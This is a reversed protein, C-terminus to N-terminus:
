RMEIESVICCQGQQPACDEILEDYLSLCSEADLGLGKLFENFIEDIDGDLRHTKSNKLHWYSNECAEEIEDILDDVEEGVDEKQRMDRILDLEHAGAASLCQVLEGNEFLAGGGIGDGQDSAWIGLTRCKLVASVKAANSVPSNSGIKSQPIAGDIAARAQRILPDSDIDGERYDIDGRYAFAAMAWGSEELQSVVLDANGTSAGHKVKIVKGFVSATETAGAEVLVTTCCCGDRLQYLM